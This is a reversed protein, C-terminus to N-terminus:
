HAAAHVRESRGGAPERFQSREAREASRHAPAREADAKPVFPVFWDGVRSLGSRQVWPVNRIKEYGRAAVQALYRIAMIALGICTIVVTKLGSFIKRITERNNGIFTTLTGILGAILGWIRGDLTVIRWLQILYPEITAYFALLGNWFQVSWNQLAANPMAHPANRPGRNGSQGQPQQQYQQQQQHHHHRNGGNNHAEDNNRNRMGQQSVPPEGGIPSQVDHHSKPNEMSSHSPVLSSRFLRFLADRRWKFFLFDAHLQFM